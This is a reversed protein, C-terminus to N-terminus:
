RAREVPHQGALNSKLLVRPHLRGPRRSAAQPLRQSSRRQEGEQQHLVRNLCLLALPAEPRNPAVAVPDSHPEARDSRLAEEPGSRLGAAEGPSEALCRSAEASRPLSEAQEPQAAWLVERAWAPM